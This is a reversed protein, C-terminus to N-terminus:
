IKVQKKVDFGGAGAQLHNGKPDQQFYKWEIRAYNLQISEMVSNDSNYGNQTIGAILVDTLSIELVTFEGNASLQLRAHKIHQGTACALALPISATDLKKAIVLDGFQVKGPARGAGYPVGEQQLQWSYSLVEIEQHHHEVQSEGKIGDLQLFYYLLM